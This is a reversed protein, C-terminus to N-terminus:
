SSSHSNAFSIFRRLKFPVVHGLGATVPDCDAREATSTSARHTNPAENKQCGSETGPKTSPSVSRESLSPLSVLLVNESLGRVVVVLINLSQLRSSSRESLARCIFRASGVGFLRLLKDDVEASAM